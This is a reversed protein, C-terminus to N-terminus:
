GDKKYQMEENGKELEIKILDPIQEVYKKLQNKNLNSKKINDNFHIIQFSCESIDKNFFKHIKTIRKLYEFGVINLYKINEFLKIVFDIKLEFPILINQIYKFEFAFNCNLDTETKENVILLIALESCNTPLQDLFHQSLKSNQIKLEILYICKILFNLLRDEDKLDYVSIKKINNYKRFFDVPLIPILQDKEVRDFLSRNKEMFDILKNFYIENYDSFNNALLHYNILRAEFMNYAYYNTRVYKSSLLKVFNYDEFPKIFEIGYFYIKKITIQKKNKLNLLKNLYKISNKNIFQETILSEGAFTPFSKLCFYLEELKKFKELKNIKQFDVLKLIRLNKFEYLNIKDKDHIKLFEVYQPYEIIYDYGAGKVNGLELKIIKSKINITYFINWIDPGIILHKLKPLNLTQDKEINIFEIHLKELNIFQDFIKLEFNIESCFYLEKLSNVFLIKFSSFSLLFNLDYYFPKFLYKYNWTTRSKTYCNWGTFSFNHIVLKDKKFNDILFRIRKSILKCKILDPLDLENLIISIMENPLDLFTTVSETM